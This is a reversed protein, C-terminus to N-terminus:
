PRRGNLLMLLFLLGGAFEIVVSLASQGKVVHQFVTQGGVLTVVAVLIAAPLLVAHRRTDVIREAIAVVLLGFLYIPGVLATSVAVLSAVLLLAAAAARSWSVGLGVATDPALGMVDLVHRYRWALLAGVGIVVGGAAVLDARVTNFDAFSAGQLLAFDNPDIMRALLSSLSRFLLGLVVGTLLLLMVDIRSRLMPMFLALSFGVMLAIEGGFKLRADLNAFGFGGFVFVLVTQCLLYLSDLGMISPTLIRNATVTQFLVTALAVAVAVEILSALRMARLELVFLLNGRLGISMFAAVCLLALAALAALRWAARDPM